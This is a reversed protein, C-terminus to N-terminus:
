LQQQSGMITLPTNVSPVGMTQTMVKSFVPGAVEGGYYGGKMPEDIMIATVYKPNDAPVMGVFVSLYRDKSYRGDVIKKVTATKGAASYGEVRAKYATGDEDFVHVLMRRIHKATEHTFVRQAGQDVGRKFFTVTHLVGDDAIATYAKALQLVTSSIGYGFSLTAKEFDNMPYDDLFIGAAEGPFGSKTRAGLGLSKYVKLIDGSYMEESIKSVAVHSSKKLVGTLDLVGYNRFDRVVNDGIRLYGPSTDIKGDIDVYGGDLAGALFLPKASSGPEFSDTAARNRVWGEQAGNPDFSPSNVLAVVEGTRANLMVLSGAKAEHRDVALQLEHYAIKQIRSDISLLVDAGPVGNLGKLIHDFSLELGEEGNDYSGVLGLLSGGARGLPYVRDYETGVHVGDMGLANVKEAIGASVDRKLYVFGREKNEVLTRLFMGDNLSIMEELQKSKEKSIDSMERPNIWVTRVRKTTALLQNHRDLIDGRYPHSFYKLLSDKQEKSSMAGQNKDFLDIVLSFGHGVNPKSVFSKFRTKKKLDVVVRLGNESSIGSRIRSFLVHDSKPQLIDSGLKTDAIDIILRDPEGLVFVKYDPLENVDLILRVYNSYSWFRMASVQLQKANALSVNSILLVFFVITLRVRYRPFISMISEGIGM